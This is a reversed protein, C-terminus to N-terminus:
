EGAAGRLLSVLEDVSPLGASRALIRGASDVVIIEPIMRVGYRQAYLEADGEAATVDLRLPVFRRAEALVRADVWARRELDICPVSWDARVYVLLPLSQLRARDRADRESTMWAIPAVPLPKSPASSVVSAVSDLPAASAVAPLTVLPVSPSGSSPTLNCAIGAALLAVVIALLRQCTAVERLV